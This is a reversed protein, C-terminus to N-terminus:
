RGCCPCSRQLPGLSIEGDLRNGEKIIGGKAIRDLMDKFERQFEAQESPDLQMYGKLVRNVRQSAM